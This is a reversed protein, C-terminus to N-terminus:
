RALRLQTQTTRTISVCTSRCRCGHAANDPRCRDVTTVLLRSQEKGDAGRFIIEYGFNNRTSSPEHNGQLTACGDFDFTANFKAVFAVLATHLPEGSLYQYRKQDGVPFEASKRCLEKAEDSADFLEVFRHM